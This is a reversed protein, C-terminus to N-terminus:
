LGVKMLREHVMLKNEDPIMDWYDMLINYGAKWMEIEEEPTQKM